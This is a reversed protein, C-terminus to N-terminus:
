YGVLLLLVWVLGYKLGCHVNISFHLTILLAVPLAEVYCIPYESIKQINIFNKQANMDEERM